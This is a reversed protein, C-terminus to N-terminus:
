DADDTQGDVLQQIRAYVERKPLGTREALTKALDRPSAGGDLGETIADDLQQADPAADVSSGGEIVLTLEGRTGDRFHEALETASGRVVSEHLKTLERCVAMRRTDGLQAALEALTAALRHPSEFLVTAEPREVISTLAERRRRGSRPLFGVFRVASLPIGAVAVAATLASPGPIVEVRAGAERAANVLEGGPDSVVPTGADTVLAVHKGEALMALVQEIAQPGSHAHFARLKADIVHHSCLKRTRRTDEALVLDAERLTRLCRLTVDELNGIPTSVVSLLGGGNGSM